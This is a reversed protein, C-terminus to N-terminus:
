CEGTSFLFLSLSAVRSLRPSQCCSFHASVRKQRKNAQLCGGSLAAAKLGAAWPTKSSGERHARNNTDEGVSNKVSKLSKLSRQRRTRSYKARSPKRWHFGSRADRQRLERESQDAAPFIEPLEEAGARAYQRTSRHPCSAATVDRCVCHATYSSSGCLASRQVRGLWFRSVSLPARATRPHVLKVPLVSM